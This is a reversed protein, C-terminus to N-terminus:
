LLVSCKVATGQHGSGGAGARRGGPDGEAAGGEAELGGAGACSLDAIGQVVSLSDVQRREAKLLEELRKLLYEKSSETDM